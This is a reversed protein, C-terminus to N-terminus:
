NCNSTTYTTQSGESTPLNFNSTKFTTFGSPNTQKSLSVGVDLKELFAVMAVDGANNNGNVTWDAASRFNYYEALLEGKFEPGNAFNEKPYKALFAMAKERDYINLAFLEGNNNMAFNTIYNANDSNTSLLEYLDGPSNSNDSTHNHFVAIQVIGSRPSFGNYGVKYPDSDLATSITSVHYVGNSDMGIAFSNEKVKGNTAQQNILTAIQILASKIDTSNLIEVMKASLQRAAACPDKPENPNETGGGGDGSGGQDECMEYPPCQGGTSDGGRPGTYGGSGKPPATIVVNQINCNGNAYTTGQACNGDKSTTKNNNTFIKSYALQFALINDLYLSSDKNIPTFYLETEDATLSAVVLDMVKGKDVKPYVVILDKNDYTIVQSHLRFEIYPANNDSIFYQKKDKDFEVENETNVLGTINTKNISDFRQAM